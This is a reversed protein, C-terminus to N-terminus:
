PTSRHVVYIRLKSWCGIPCDVISSWEFNRNHTMIKTRGFNRNHFTINSWGFNRGNVTIKSLRFKCNNATIESGGLNRNHFM